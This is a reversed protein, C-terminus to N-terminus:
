LQVGSDLAERRVPQTATNASQVIVDVRRGYMSRSVRASLRAALLAENEVTCDLQVMLDVDGGRKSDDVRSGFLWVRAEPGFIDATARKITQIQTPTLRM